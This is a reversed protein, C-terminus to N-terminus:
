EYNLCPCKNFQNPCQIKPPFLKGNFNYDQKNIIIDSMAEIYNENTGLAPVRSHEHNLNKLIILSLDLIYAVITIEVRSQSLFLLFFM